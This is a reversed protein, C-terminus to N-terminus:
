PNNEYLDAADQIFSPMNTGTGPFEAKYIAALPGGLIGFEPVISIFMDQGFPHKSTTWYKM